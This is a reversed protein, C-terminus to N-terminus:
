HAADQMAPTKPFLHLHQDLSNTEQSELINRQVGAKGERIRDEDVDVAVAAKVRRTKRVIKGLRDRVGVAGVSRRRGRNEFDM